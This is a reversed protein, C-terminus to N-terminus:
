QGTLLRRLRDAGRVVLQGGPTSVPGVV